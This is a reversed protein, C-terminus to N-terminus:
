RLGARSAARDIAAVAAQPDAHHPMHGVGPLRTLRANPLMRALPESHISIGVTTDATGHVLEIPMRLEARYRASMEVIHPRLARVQQGNARLSDRRITLGPGIYDAYGPPASQPAFVDEVARDIRGQPALATILPVLTAGGVASGTVDYYTDLDGPWPLSVGAFLVLAATDNPRSLGWALAVAGGYSHGVVIPNRIGLQKAAKQLLAAQAMPSEGRTDGADGYGPLRDTWGLGPRDFATVRYHRSLRKALDFTFDRLNGGAGHLLVVDPGNGATWAHVQTGDVSLVQGIPPFDARAQAERQGALGGCGAILALAGLTIWILKAAM